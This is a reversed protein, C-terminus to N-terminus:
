RYFEGCKICKLSTSFGDPIHQCKNEVPIGGVTLSGSSTGFVSVCHNTSCDCHPTWPANIRNCRPCEWPNNM